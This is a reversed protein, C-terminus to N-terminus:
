QKNIFDVPCSRMKRSFIRSFYSPSSFGLLASVESVTFDGSEIMARARELRRNLSFSKPSVGVIDKFRKRFFSQSLHCMDALAAISVCECEHKEIYAVAPAIASFDAGRSRTSRRDEECWLEIIGYFCSKLAPLSHRQATMKDILRGLEEKKSIRILEVSDSFSFSEARNEIRFNLLLTTVRGTVDSFVSEYHSGSPLYLIDGREAHITTGDPLHVDIKCAKVYLLGHYIRPKSLFSVKSGNKFYNQEYFKLDLVTFDETRPDYFANKVM